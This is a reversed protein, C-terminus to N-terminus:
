VRGSRRGPRACHRAFIRPLPWMGPGAGISAANQAIDVKLYEGDLRGSSRTQSIRQRAHGARAMQLQRIAQYGHNESIVVTVKLGEQMATILETPNMFYTGDGIFVYVEGHEQAMRIGLGAPLEFGMCSFGFELYCKRDDFVDWLKHLDAPPSGAAAVITDGCYAEANLVQLLQTQSMAEGPHQCYVEHIVQQVWTKQLNSVESIYAKNPQMGSRTAAEQLARLAERGDAVLPLAGMKYADHAEVNIHIFRVRPHNFASQSGTTFDTLRAYRSGFHRRGRQCTKRGSANRNPRLWRSRARQSTADGRQRRVNRRRPDWIDRCVNTTRGLM